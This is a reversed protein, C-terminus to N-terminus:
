KERTVCGGLGSAEAEGGVTTSCFVRRRRMATFMSCLLFRDDSCTARSASACCRAAGRSAICSEDSLPESSLAPAPAVPAVRLECFETIEGPDDSRSALAFARTALVLVAAAAAVASRECIFRAIRAFRRWGRSAAFAGPTPPPAVSSAGLGGEAITYLQDFFIM